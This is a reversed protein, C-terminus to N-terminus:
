SSNVRAHIEKMRNRLGLLIRRYEEVNMDDALKIKKRVPHPPLSELVGVFISAEILDMSDFGLAGGILVFPPRRM